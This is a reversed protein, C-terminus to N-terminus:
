ATRSDTSRGVQLVSNDPLLMSAILFDKETNKPIRVFGVRRHIGALGSPMDKFTIWEDPVNLLTVDNWANVLRIFFTKQGNAEQQIADRLASLGGNDYIAAYEQLHAQLVERDKSGIAAALLYYALVLLAVSSLAFVSAYWLALRVGINRRAAKLLDFSM